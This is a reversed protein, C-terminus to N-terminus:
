AKSPIKKSNMRELESALCTAPVRTELGAIFQRLHSRMLKLLTLKQEVQALRCKAVDAMALLQRKRGHAPLSATAVSQHLPLLEAIERLTFGLKQSRQIFRLFELDSEGYCRYNASNRPPKRLLGKREYFRVTQINVGAKAALEGIRM